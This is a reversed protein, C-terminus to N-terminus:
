NKNVEPLTENDWCPHDFALIAYALVVKEKHKISFIGIESINQLATSRVSPQEHLGGGRNHRARVEDM